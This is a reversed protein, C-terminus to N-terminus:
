CEDLGADGWAHECSHAPDASTSAQQCFGGWCTVEAESRSACSAMCAAGDAYPYGELASCTEELCACLLECDSAPAGGGAGGEGGSSSSSAVDGHPPECTAEEHALDCTLGEACQADETCAEGEGRLSDGGAGGGGGTDDGCAVVFTLLGLIALPALSSTKM